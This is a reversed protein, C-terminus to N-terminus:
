CEFMLVMKSPVSLNTRIQFGDLYEKDVVCFNLM